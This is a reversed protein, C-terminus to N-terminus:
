AALELATLEIEKGRIVEQAPTICRPCFLEQTSSPSHERGCQPCRMLLSVTEIILRSRELFTGQCAIQYSFALAETDVGSLKGVRLHVAEIELGGRSDAEETIRDVISLAISLEHM